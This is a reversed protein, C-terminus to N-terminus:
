WQWQLLTCCWSISAISYLTTQIRITISIRIHLKVTSILGTLLNNVQIYTAPLESLQEHMQKNSLFQLTWTSFVYRCMCVYMYTYTHFFNCHDEYCLNVIYYIVSIQNQDLGYYLVKVIIKNNIKLGRNGEM